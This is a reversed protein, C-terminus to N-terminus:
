EAPEEIDSVGEGGFVTSMPIMPLNAYDDPLEEYGYAERLENLSAHMKALNDLVDSPDDQLVSIKDTNVVLKFEVDMGFHALLDAAFENALPIANVEYLSKKAEKANEYKSQGYYLDVPLDYIFCLATIAEKHSSLIGLDVPSKGLEHLEIATRLAKIQGKVDKGNLEATVQDAMAPMVGLNDAKPTVIATPGGNKLSTDQRAMGTDIVSLYVAAVVLPSTGYFSTDDLNYNFSMFFDDKKILEPSSGGTVKIGKMPTKYGGKEIGVRHGPVIYMEKGEGRDKGAKNKPSYVTADGYVLRNVAWAKGFRQCNYRDNPRRLLDLLWHNEVDEWKSGTWRQLELYTFMEGVANAIKNIIGYAPANNEYAAKLESRKITASMDEMDMGKLLDAISAFYANGAKENEYYGKLEESLQANESELATIKAERAEFDRARVTKLGFM